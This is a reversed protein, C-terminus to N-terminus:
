RVRIGPRLPSLSINRTLTVRFTTLRMPNRSLNQTIKVSKKTIKVCIVPWVSGTRSVWFHTLGRPIWIRTLKSESINYPTRWSSGTYTKIVLQYSQKSYSNLIPLQKLHFGLCSNVTDTQSPFRSSQKSYSNLISVWVTNISCSKVHLRFGSLMIIM